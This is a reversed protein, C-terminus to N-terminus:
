SNIVSSIASSNSIAIAVNVSGRVNGSFTMLLSVVVSTNNVIIIIIRNSIYFVWWLLLM